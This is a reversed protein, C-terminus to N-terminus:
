EIGALRKFKVLDQERAFAFHTKRDFPVRKFDYTIQRNVKRPDVDQPSMYDVEINFPYDRSIMAFYNRGKPNEPPEAGARFQIRAKTKM